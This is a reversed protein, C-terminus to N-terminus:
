GLLGRTSAVNKKGGLRWSRWPAGLSNKNISPQSRRPSRWRTPAQRQVHHAAGIAGAFARWSLWYLPAVGHGKENLEQQTEEIDALPPTVGPVLYVIGLPRSGEAAAQRCLGLWSKGLQDTVAGAKSAHSSKGSWLKAEVLL